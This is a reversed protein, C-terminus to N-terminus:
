KRRRTGESSRRREEERKKEDEKEELKKLKFLCNFLTNLDGDLEKLRESLTYRETKSRRIKRGIYWYGKKLHKRLYIPKERGELIVYWYRDRKKLFGKEELWTELEQLTLIKM